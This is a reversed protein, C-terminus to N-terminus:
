VHGRSSGYAGIQSAPAGNRDNCVFDWIIGWAKLDHSPAPARIASPLSPTHIIPPQIKAHRWCHAITDSTIHEWAEKAMLMAELLNVKFIDREGAEEQDLACLCFVHCYHAKFCCIIGADCPQVFVTLNPAFFEVQINCPTFPINHGSFNNIFLVIHRNQAQMEIALSKM